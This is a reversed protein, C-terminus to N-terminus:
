NVFLYKMAAKPDKIVFNDADQINTNPPPDFVDDQDNYVYVFLSYLGAVGLRAAEIDASVIEPFGVRLDDLALIALTKWTPTDVIRDNRIVEDFEDPLPPPPGLPALPSVPLAPAPGPLPAFRNSLLVMVKVEDVPFVGHNNVQIYIRANRQRNLNGANDVLEVFEVFNIDADKPFTYPTGLPPPLAVNNPNSIKIDIGDRHHVHNNNEAPDPLNDQVDYLGRDLATARIYLQVPQKYREYRYRQADNAPPQDLDIIREYIGRGHLSARLLNPSNRVQGPPPAAGVPPSNTIAPFLKLDVVSSEPLGEGWPAWTTGGDSSHWVGIDAGAYLHTAPGVSRAVITNFQTNILQNSRPGIAPGSRPEWRAGGGHASNYYWVRQWGHPQTSLNGGLTVYISNPTNPDISIGTVPMGNFPAPLIGGPSAGTSNNDLRHYTGGPWNAGGVAGGDTYKGIQGNSYGVYLTLGDSSFTMATITNPWNLVDGGVPPAGGVPMAGPVSYTNSPISQWTTGFDDSYWPRVTAFGIRDAGAAGILPPYFDVPEAPGVGLPIGFATAAPFTSGGNTSRYVWQKNMTALIHQDNTQRISVYGSDGYEGVKNWAANGTYRQTGNDQTAGLVVADESMNQGIHNISITSLGTNREEFLDPAQFGINSPNGGVAVGPRAPNASYFIGGDCGVWLANPNGPTFTLTQIDAHVSNGIYTARPNIRVAGGGTVEVECRYLSASWGQGNTPPGGLPVEITSGGIYIRNVNDPAVTLALDYWGQGSALANADPLTGPDIRRWVNAGPGTTSFRFLKSNNQTFAYVVDINTPQVALTIREEPGGGGPGVRVWNDGDASSYVHGNYFAAHFITHDGRRAVVVSTAYPTTAGPGNPPPPLPAVNANKNVWHYGMKFPMLRLNTDWRETWLLNPKVERDWVYISTLGDHPRYAVFRSEKQAQGGLKNIFEFPFFQMENPYPADDEQWIRTRIGDGFWRWVTVQRSVPDFTQFYATDEVDFAMLTLGPGLDEPQDWVDVAQGVGSWRKLLAPGLGPVEKTGAKYALFYPIGNLGFPMLDTYNTDWNQGTWVDIFRNTGNETGWLVLSTNGTTPNYLLFHPDGHLEFPMIILGPDWDTGLRSEPEGNPLVKFVECTSSRTKSAGVPAYTLFWPESEFVFPISELEKAWPSNEGHWVQTTALGDMSWYKISPSGNHINYSLFYFQPKLDPLNLAPDSNRPERRFLGQATAAIVREPDEPDVALAFFATGPDGDWKETRWNLGGDDSVVPGVSYFKTASVIAVSGEGSGWYIRDPHSPDMAIAGSSLSDSHDSLPHLAFGNMLPYWTHGSDDSRWVGGNATAAYVRQGDASVTIGTVRGSVKPHTDGQGNVVVSPGVPLWNMSNPTGATPFRAKRRALAPQFAPKTTLAEPQASTHEIIRERYDQVMRPRADSLEKVAEDLKPLKGQNLDVEFQDYLESYSHEITALRELIFSAERLVPGFKGEANRNTTLKLPQTPGPTGPGTPPAKPSQHKNEPSM